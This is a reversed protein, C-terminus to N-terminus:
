KSQFCPKTNIELSLLSYWIIQKWLIRRRSWLSIVLLVFSGLVTVILVVHPLVGSCSGHIIVQCLLLPLLMLLSLPLLLVLVLLLPPLLLPPLLLLLLTAHPFGPLVHVQSVDCHCLKREKLFECGWSFNLYKRMTLKRRRM